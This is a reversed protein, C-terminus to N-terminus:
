HLEPLVSCNVDLILGCLRQLVMVTPLNNKRYHGNDFEKHAYM